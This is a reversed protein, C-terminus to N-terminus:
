LVSGRFNHGSAVDVAVNAPGAGAITGLKRGVGPDIIVSSQQV